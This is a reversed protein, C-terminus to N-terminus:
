VLYTVNCTSCHWVSVGSKEAVKKSTHAGCSHCDNGKGAGPSKPSNWWGVADCSSCKHVGKEEHFTLKECSPCRSGKAM